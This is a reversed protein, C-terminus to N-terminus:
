TKKRPGHATPLKVEPGAKIEEQGPVPGKKAENILKRMADQPAAAQIKLLATRTTAHSVKSLLYDLFRSSEFLEPILDKAKELEGSDGAQLRDIFPQLKVGEGKNTAISVVSAFDIQHAGYFNFEATATMTRGLNKLFLALAKDDLRAIKEYVSKMVRPNMEDLFRFFNLTLIQHMHKIDYAILSFKPVSSHVYAKDSDQEPYLHLIASTDFAKGYTHTFRLKEEGLDVSRIKSSQYGFDRQKFFISPNNKQLKNIDLTIMVVKEKQSALPDIDFPGFCIVNADGDQIDTDGLAASEYQMQFKELTERGYLGDDLISKLAPASTVHTIETFLEINEVAKLIRAALEGDCKRPIYPTNAEAMVRKADTWSSELLGRYLKEIRKLEQHQRRKGRFHRQLQISAAEIAEPDRKKFFPLLRAKSERTQQQICEPVEFGEFLSARPIPLYKMFLDILKKDKSLYATRILFPNSLQQRQVMMAGLDPDTLVSKINTLVAKISALLKPDQSRLYLHVELWLRVSFDCIYSSYEMLLPSSMFDDSCASTMMLKKLLRLIDEHYTKYAEGSPPLGDPDIKLLALRLDLKRREINQLDINDLIMKELENM